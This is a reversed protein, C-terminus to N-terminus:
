LLNGLRKSLAGDRSKDDQPKAGKAFGFFRLEARPCGNRGPRFNQLCNM